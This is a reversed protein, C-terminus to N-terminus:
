EDKLCETLKVRAAKVTQTGVAFWAIFLATFASTIFFWWELEIKYAFGSLWSNVIFYSIPWAILISILVMKTYDRSLLNIIRLEGSGLIKRIGIEKLRREATFAALGFLGLCSIIIAIIAFYKSLSAIRQESAYIAQYAEDLFTFEFPIGPNFKHYLKELRAITAKENGSQIKVVITNAWEPRFILFMPKIEEYLSKYHFDKVVGIVERKGRWDIIKGVPEVLDFHKVATENLIVKSGEQGFERSFSRGEKLEIGLTELYDYGVSGYTFGRTSSEFESISGELITANVVGVTTKVESLFPELNEVLNGEKEFTLINDKDYGLNKSQVFDIQRSVVLVAVILIISISFQFIVLGKRILLEGLSTKLNTKLVEIPRLGSLFFAPYSGAIIGTFLVITVVGLILHSNWEVSLQKATIVNFQPLLFFVVLIAMLSSVVALVISEGVYQLILAIRPVGIIKKVGVEKLRRSAQATSLNMFNICAIILIILAITSFLLVYDIRGGVLVGHEYRDYLYRDAYRQVFMNGIWEPHKEGYLPELKSRYFDNIKVNFEDVDVGEHLSLYVSANNSGWDLDGPDRKDLFLKNTLLFDFEQLSKVDTIDFVGSIVYNGKYVVQGDSNDVVGIVNGLVSEDTGFLSAALQQSIVIFNKDSLVHDKDGEILKFSFLNFFDKGAMQGKAKIKKDNASLISNTAEHAVPVVYEVEGFTEILAPALLDSNSESTKIGREGKDINRLVQFLRADKQHFKDFSLEDYVWLYILLVSALGTSLGILNIFFSSKYRKFNRYTFLFNYRFMTIPNLYNNTKSLRFFAPRFYHIVNWVFRWKAKGPSREYHDEYLETLDGEIEELYDERCFWRLFRLARKPPTPKM